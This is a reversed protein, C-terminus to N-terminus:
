RLAKGGSSEPRCDAMSRLRASRLYAVQHLALAGLYCSARAMELVLERRHASGMGGGGLGALLPLFWVLV